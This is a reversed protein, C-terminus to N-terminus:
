SLKGNNQTAVVTLRSMLERMLAPDEIAKRAVKRENVLETMDSSVFVRLPLM